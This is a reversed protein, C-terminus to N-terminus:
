TCTNYHILPMCAHIFIIGQNGAAFLILVDPNHYSFYDVDYCQSTYYTGGGWSNSMVRAGASYLASFLSASLDSPVSMYGSYSSQLDYFAVKAGPAVGARRIFLYICMCCTYMM